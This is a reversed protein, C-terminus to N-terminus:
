EEAENYQGFLQPNQSAFTPETQWSKSFKQPLNPCQLLTVYKPM